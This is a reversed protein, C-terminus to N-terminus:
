LYIIYSAFYVNAVQNFVSFLALKQLRYCNIKKDLVDEIDLNIEHGAWQRYDEKERVGGPPRM